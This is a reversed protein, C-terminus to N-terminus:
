RTEGALGTETGIETQVIEIGTKTGTLATETEKLATEKKTETLATGIEEKQTEETKAVHGIREQGRKVAVADVVTLVTLERERMEGKRTM